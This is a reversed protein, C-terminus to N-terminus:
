GCCGNGGCCGGGRNKLDNVYSDFEASKKSTSKPSYEDCETGCTPCNAVRKWCYGYIGDEYELKKGESEFISQCFQCYFKNKM